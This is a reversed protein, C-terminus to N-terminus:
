LRLGLSAAGGSCPHPWLDRCGVVRGQPEARIAGLSSKTHTPPHGSPDSLSPGQSIVKEATVEVWCPPFIDACVGGGVCVSMPVCRYVSVLTCEGTHVCVSMLVCRYVGM